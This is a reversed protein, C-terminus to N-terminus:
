VSCCPGRFLYLHSSTIAITFNLHKFDCSILHIRHILKLKLYPKLLFDIDNIYYVTCTKDALIICTHKLDAQTGDYSNHHILGHMTLWKTSICIQLRLNLVDREYVNLKWFRVLYHHHVHSIFYYCYIM